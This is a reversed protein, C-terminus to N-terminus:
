DNTGETSKAGGDDEKLKVIKAEKEAEKPKRKEARAERKAQISKSVYDMSDAAIEWRDTRINHAPDVGNKRETYVQPAGDTIPEKNNVIREVKWEIPEGELTEVGKLKSKNFKPIRYM